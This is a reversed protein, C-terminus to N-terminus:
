KIFIVGFGSGKHIGKLLTNRASKNNSINVRQYRDCLYRSVFECADNSLGYTNMKALLLCNQIYDFAKLLDIM